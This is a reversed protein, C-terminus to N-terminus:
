SRYIGQTIASAMDKYLQMAAEWSKQASAMDDSATSITQQVIQMLQSLMQSMANDLAEQMVLPVKALDFGGRIASQLADFGSKSFDSFATAGSAQLETSRQQGRMLQESFSEKHFDSREDDSIPHFRNDTQARAEHRDKLAKSVRQSASLGEEGPNAPKLKPEGDQLVMKGNADHEYVDKQAAKFDAKRGDKIHQPVAPENEGKSWKEMKSMATKDQIKKDIKDGSAKTFGRAALATFGQALQAGALAFNMVADLQLQDAKAKGAAITFDYAEKAMDSFLQMMNQKLKSSQKIIDNNIKLLESLIPALMAMIGPSLFPNSAPRAGFVMSEHFVNLPPPTTVKTGGLTTLWTKLVAVDEPSLEGMLNQAMNKLTTVESETLTGGQGNLMANAYQALSVLKPDLGQQTLLLASGTQTAASRPFTALTKVFNQLAALDDGEAGGNILAEAAAQLQDGEQKTLKGSNGQVYNFAQQGLQRVEDSLGLADMLLQSAEPTKASRTARQGETGASSPTDSPAKTSSSSKNEPANPDDSVPYEGLATMFSMLMTKDADTLVSPTATFLDTATQTLLTVQEQTLKGGQSAAMSHALKGLDKLPQSEAQDNVLLEQPNVGLSSLPVQPAQPTNQPKTTGDQPTTPTQGSFVAGKPTQPAQQGTLTGEPATQTTTPDQTQADQKILTEIYKQLAAKSGEQLVPQNILTKGSIDALEKLVEQASNTNDIKDRQVEKAKNFAKVDKARQTDPATLLLLELPDLNSSSPKTSSEPTFQNQPANNNVNVGM